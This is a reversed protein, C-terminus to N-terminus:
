KKLTRNGKQNKPTYPCHTCGNGCCYGREKLYKETYVLNGKKDFYFDDNNTLYLDDVFM